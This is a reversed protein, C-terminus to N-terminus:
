SFGERRLRAAAGRVPGGSSGLPVSVGEGPALEVLREGDCRVTTPGGDRSVRIEHGRFVLGDLDFSEVGMDLPDLVLADTREPRVGALNKVVLDIWHSHFYDDETSLPAGTEPNYHEVVCPLAPDGGRTMTRTFRRFLEAFGREWRPRDHRAATSLASLLFSTAYPWMPGNWLCMHVRKGRWTNDPAYVPCSRAATPCPAATWFESPDFLCDFAELAAAGPVRGSLFMPWFGGVQRVLAPEDTDHRLDYFFRREPDWMKGMISRELAQARAALATAQGQRGTAACLGAAAATNAHLFAALDARKLPTEHALSNRYGVEMEPFGSFAFFSPQYEMATNGHTECIPLLDGAGGSPTLYRYWSEVDRCLGPVVAELWEPEEHICSLERVHHQVIHPHFTGALRDAHIVSVFMGPPSYVVRRGSATYYEDSVDQEQTLLLTDVSGRFLSPDRYWKLEALSHTANCTSFSSFGYTLKEEGARSGDPVIGHRGDYFCAFPLFGTRPISMAHRLLFWRYWWMRVLGEDSAALTPCLDFWAQYEAAHQAAPDAAGLRSAARRAAEPASDAFALAVVAELTGGVEVRAGGASLGAPRCATAVRPRTGHFTRGDIAADHSRVRLVLPSGGRNTVRLVSVACDDATVLKDEWLEVGEGRLELRLHSPFWAHERANWRVPRGGSEVTIEFLVRLDTCHVYGFRGRFGPEPFVYDCWLREGTSSVLLTDPFRSFPRRINGLVSDIGERGM